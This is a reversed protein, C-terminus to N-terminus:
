LFAASEGRLKALALRTKRAVDVGYPCEIRGASAVLSDADLKRARFRERAVDGLAFWGALRVRLAYDAPDHPLFDIMQRDCYGELRFLEMLQEPCVGCQRCVYRGLEPADRLITEIEATEAAGRCVAAAAQCVHEPANMGCVAVEAGAALVYRLAPEVSRYLFGDALPKMATIGVGRERALSFVEQRIEPLYLDELYNCWILILSLPLREIGAIYMPVRHSSMGIGRILGEDRAKLMGELAGGPSTICELKEMTNLGHFLYFDLHDTRLAKLSAELERRLEDATTAGTKSCLVVQDRRGALARGLKEESAGAGYSRATEIYNGGVDLYADVVEAVVETSIEVQHFGGLALRSLEVGTKGLRVRPLRLRRSESAQDM